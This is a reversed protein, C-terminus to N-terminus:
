DNASFFWIWISAFVLLIGAAAFVNRIAETDIAQSSLAATIGSVLAVAGLSRREWKRM